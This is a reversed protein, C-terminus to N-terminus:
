AEGLLEKGETSIAYCISYVDNELSVPNRPERAHIIFYIDM